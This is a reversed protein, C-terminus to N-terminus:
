SVPTFKVTLLQNTAQAIDNLLGISVNMQGSEIRAITSQPKNVLEAFERQTLGLSDRLNRVEVAIDLKQSEQKYEALFQPDKRGRKQIYDDIRSM